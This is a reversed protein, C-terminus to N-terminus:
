PPLCSNCPQRLQHFNAIRFQTERLFDRFDLIILLVQHADPSHPEGHRIHPHSLSTALNPVSRFGNPNRNCSCFRINLIAVWHLSHSAHIFDNLLPSFTPLSFHLKPHLYYLNQHLILAPSVWLIYLEKMYSYHSCGM